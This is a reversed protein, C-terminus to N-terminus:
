GWVEEKRIAGAKRLRRLSIGSVTALITSGLAVEWSLLLAGGIAFMMGFILGIGFVVSWLDRGLNQLPALGTREQQRRWGPGGPRARSYFRDLVEDSEPSTLFVVTLWVLATGFATVPLVGAPGAEAIPAAVRALAAFPAGLPGVTTWDIAPLYLFLAIGLGALMSAIEAWANIRAWFWRLILVAGPGTGIAIMFTFIM